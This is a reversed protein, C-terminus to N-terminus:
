YGFGATPAGYPDALYPCLNEKGLVDSCWNGFSLQSVFYCYPYGCTYAYDRSYPYGLGFDGPGPGFASYGIGYAGSGPGYGGYGAGRYGAGGYPAGNAGPTMGYAGYGPGGYGPGGYGYGTMNNLGGMGGMGGGMLGGGIGASASGGGAAGAVGGSAGAGVNGQALASSGSLACTGLALALGALPFSGVGRMLSFM